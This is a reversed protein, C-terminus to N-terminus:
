VIALARLRALEEFFFAVDLLFVGARFFFVLEFFVVRYRKPEVLVEAPARFAGARTQPCECLHNNSLGLALVLMLSSDMVVGVALGM